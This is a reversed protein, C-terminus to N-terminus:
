NLEIKVSEAFEKVTSLGLDGKKRDRVSIKKSKEEKEGVVILYPIKQLQGGRIKKGLTENETRVTVRLNCALLTGAVNEAYKNFKESVPIIWIQEPALWLPFAGAYHEIIIGMFREISGLYASHIMVPTKKSGDKDIYELGFRGPMNFDLQMTSIQWERGLSDNIMFDMKPGYFAAEGAASEYKIKNNKLIGEMQKQAKDWLADDGLYAEKNNEDRLSLRIRYDKLEFKKVVALVGLLLAAFEQEIQDERAFSHSDDTTISRVRTLGGLEGAQEDRYATTTEYFRVPLDKYSRMSSAYIQTHHPCNMPKLILESDKGRVYFIDNKFKLLHGSVKYLDPKTIHPIHVALYGAERKLSESFKQLENWIITGKPTFLPLGPGVLDSFTFLGLEKGLKKHDRKEAEEIQKLYAELEKKSEFAVGYVRKLMPNKESGRWYAGAVRTLKFADLPLNKTNEVHGGRCLDLFADGMSVMGVKDGLEDILELKYPQNEKGFHERAKDADWEEKKFEHGEKAIKIMEKEIKPLDEEGIKASDFDYYFGNEIAPGIGFKVGPYLRKVAAALLHAFSHRINEVYNAM